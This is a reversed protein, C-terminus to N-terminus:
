RCTVARARVYTRWRCGSCAGPMRTLSLACQSLACWGSWSDGMGVYQYDDFRLCLHLQGRPDLPISVHRETGDVLGLLSIVGSGLKQHHKIRKWDKVAVQACSFHTSWHTTTTLPLPLSLPLSVQLEEAGDVEFVLLENWDPRDAHKRVGTRLKRQKSTNELTLQCYPDCHSDGPPLFDNASLVLITLAGQLGANVSV